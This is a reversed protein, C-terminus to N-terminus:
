HTMEIMAKKGCNECVGLSKRTDYMDQRRTFKNEIMLDIDGSGNTFLELVYDENFEPNSITNCESCKTFNTTRFRFADSPHLRKLRDSDVMREFELANLINVLLEQPLPQENDPWSKPSSELETMLRKLYSLSLLPYKPQEYDEHSRISTESLASQIYKIMMGNTSYECHPKDDGTRKLYKPRFDLLMPFPPETPKGKSFKKKFTKVELLVAFVAHM